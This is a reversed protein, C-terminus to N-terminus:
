RTSPKGALLPYPNVPTGQWWSDEAGMRHIAFHLHTNGAGANGTDGVFAIRQGASVHQGERLGDVYGSLHAYYAQMDGERIYLTLGGAKSTFLKVVTGSFAALVPTGGPAPIDLAEHTRAGDARPDHWSDVLQEPQVGQVPIVYSEVSAPLGGDRASRPEGTMALAAVGVVILAAFIWGFRNM